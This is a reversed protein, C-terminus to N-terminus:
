SLGTNQRRQHLVERGKLVDHGADAPLTAFPPLDAALKVVRELRLTSTTWRHVRGDLRVPPLTKNGKLSWVQKQEGGSAQSQTVHFELPRGGVLTKAHLTTWASPLRPQLDLVGSMLDPRFGLYDQWANRAFESVSWAQSFTGTPVLRGNEDPLADLLESMTGVAGLDLIQRGLNQSLAWARDQWGCAALASVAFGANWGWLTGNHYAADKHWSAPREHQPHFDPHGPELSLIGQPLLLRSVTHEVVRRALAEPVLPAFPITLAMLANPRLRDDAAGAEDLRDVLVGDREFLAFFAAQAKDAAGDYWAAEAADDAKQALASGVRLATIWLVQIEVARNGRPTWPTTGEIRADMWTDADDHRLLGDADVYNKLAGEVYRRVLPRQALAFATDGSVRAYEWLERIMWPTGDVTNYLVEQATVRNPIRGADTSATQNQLRTFNALVARATELQGTVLLTGPLAIFTDRGWNDKFWPLGAWIGAGFETTVLSRASAAAWFLALNYAEDSTTFTTANLSAWRREVETEWIGATQAAKRNQRLEDASEGFILHVIVQNENTHTIVERKLGAPVKPLQPCVEFVAPRDATVRLSLIRRGSHLLLEETVGPYDVRHGWPYVTDSVAKFDRDLPRDNITTKWGQFVVEDRVRYGQGLTSSHTFGEFWGSLNDTLVFRDRQAPARVLGVNSWPRHIM